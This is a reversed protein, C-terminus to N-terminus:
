SNLDRKRYSFDSSLLYVAKKTKKNYSVCVIKQYDGGVLVVTKRYPYNQTSVFEDGNFEYEKLVNTDYGRCNVPGYYGDLVYKSDIYWEILEGLDKVQGSRAHKLDNSYSRTYINYSPFGRKVVGGINLKPLKSDPVIKKKKLLANSINDMPVLCYKQSLHVVIDEYRVKREDLYLPSKITSWLRVDGKNYWIGPLIPQEDWQVVDYSSLAYMDADSLYKAMNGLFVSSCLAVDNLDFYGIKSILGCYVGEKGISWPESSLYKKGLMKCVYSATGIGDGPIYIPENMDKLIVMYKEIQSMSTDVFTVPSMYDQRSVPCSRRFSSLLLFYEKYSLSSIYSSYDGKYKVVYLESVKKEFIGIESFYLELVGLNQSKEWSDLVYLSCYEEYDDFFDYIGNKVNYEFCQIYAGLCGLERAMVHGSVKTIKKNSIILQSVNSSLFYACEKRDWNGEELSKISSKIRILDDVSMVKIDDLEYPHVRLKLSIARTIFSHKNQNFFIRWSM